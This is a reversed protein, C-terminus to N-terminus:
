RVALVLHSPFIQLLLRALIPIQEIGAILRDAWEYKQYARVLPFTILFTSFDYKASVRALDNYSLLFTSDYSVNRRFRVYRMAWSRPLFGLWRLNVHPEPSFLDYRNRSDGCFAGGIHLVRHCEGFVADFERVHELINLAAIFNLSSDQIPLAQGYAQILSVNAVDQDELAKKAIILSPLSPDLGLVHKFKASMTILSGGTGCGLDLALDDPDAHWNISELRQHFMELMRKGREEQIDLYAIEHGLLDGSTPACTMRIHLLEEYSSSHFNSALMQILNRELESEKIPNIRLDPIGLLVPYSRSCQDCYLSDESKPIIQNLCNPCQLNLM